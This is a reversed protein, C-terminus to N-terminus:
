TVTKASGCDIAEPPVELIVASTVVRPPLGTGSPVVTLKVVLLPLTVGKAWVVPPRASAVNVAGATVALVVAVIVAETPPLDPLTLTATVAGATVGPGISTVGGAIVTTFVLKLAIVNVIVPPVPGNVTVDLSGTLAHLSKAGAFLRQLSAPSVPMHVFTDDVNLTVTGAPAHGSGTVRVIVSEVPAVFVAVSVIAVDLGSVMVGTEADMHSFSVKHPAPVSVAVKVTEPPM